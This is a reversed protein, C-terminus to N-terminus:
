MDAIEEASPSTRSWFHSVENMISKTPGMTYIEHDPTTCNQGEKMGMLVSMRALRPETGPM